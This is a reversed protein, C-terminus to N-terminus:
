ANPHAIEPIPRDAELMQFCQECAGTVSAVAHDILRNRTRLPIVSRDLDDLFRATARQIAPTGMLSSHKVPATLRRLATLDAQIRALDRELRTARPPPPLARTSTGGGGSAGCGALLLAGLLM